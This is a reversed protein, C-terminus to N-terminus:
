PLIDYFMLSPDKHSKNLYVIYGRGKLAGDRQLDNQGDVFHCGVAFQRRLLFEFGQIQQVTKEAIVGVPYGTGANLPPCLFLIKAHHHGGAVISKIHIAGCGAVAVTLEDSFFQHLDGSPHERKGTLSFIGEDATQGHASEASHSVAQLVM